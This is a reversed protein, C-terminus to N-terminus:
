LPPPRHYPPAEAAKHPVHQQPRYLGAVTNSIHAYRLCFNEIHKKWSGGAFPSTKSSRPSVVIAAIDSSVPTALYSSIGGM